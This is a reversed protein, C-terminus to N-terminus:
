EPSFAEFRYRDGEAVLYGTSPGGFHTGFVMVGSNAYRGRFGARTRSALERDVDAAMAWHPAVFQVPHHVLDGTIVARKGASSICVSVHGPSHGPSPELWVEDTVQHDMEVLDAQGAEFVPRVADGFTVAAGENGADWYDYETRSFLYRAAAFTPQWRGDVLTTNWGVHDFHLHTCLVVDVEGLGFGAETFRDLFGTQLNSMEDFGPVPRSGICTDVVITRGQSQVVLAHISLSLMADDDVFHPRLWAANDTVAAPDFHDPFMGAGDVVTTIERVMTVTVEGIQWRM